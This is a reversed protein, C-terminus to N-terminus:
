KRSLTTQEIEELPAPDERPHFSSGPLEPTFCLWATRCPTHSSGGCLPSSPAAPPQLLLVPGVCGWLAAPPECCCSCIPGGQRLMSTTFRQKGQALHLASTMYCSDWAAHGEVLGAPSHVAPLALECCLQAAETPLLGVPISMPPASGWPTLSVACVDPCWVRSLSFSM